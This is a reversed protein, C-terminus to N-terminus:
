RDRFEVRLEKMVREKFRKSLITLFETKYTIDLLSAYDNEVYLVILGDQRTSCCFVNCLLLM